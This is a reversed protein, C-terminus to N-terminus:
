AGTHYSVNAELFLRIRGWVSAVFYKLNKKVFLPLLPLIVFSDGRPLRRRSFFGHFFNKVFPHLCPLSSLN